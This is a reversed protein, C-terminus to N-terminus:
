EPAVALYEESVSEGRLLALANEALTDVARERYEITMAATHPTTVVNPCDHLPSDPPLPETEH